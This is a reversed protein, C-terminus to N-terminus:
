KILSKYQDVVSKLHRDHLIFIQRKNDNVNSEYDYNTIAKQLGSALDAGNWDVIISTDATLVYHHVDSMNGTGYKNNCYAVMEEQSLPWDRKVDIIDNALLIVWHYQTTGYFKHALIEPTEGDSIYYSLLATKNKFFNDLIVRRFIDPVITHRKEGNSTYPYVMKPMENFYM